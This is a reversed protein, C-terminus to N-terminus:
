LARDRFGTGTGLTNRGATGFGGVGQARHPGWPGRPDPKGEARAGRRFPGRSPAGWVGRGGPGGCVARHRAGASRLAEESLVREAQAVTQRSEPVRHPKDSRVAWVAALVGAAATGALGLWVRRVWRSRRVAKLARGRSRPTGPRLASPGQGPRRAAELRRSVEGILTWEQVFTVFRCKGDPRDLLRKLREAEMESLEGRVYKEFLEEEANM